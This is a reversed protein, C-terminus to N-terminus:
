KGKTASEVHYPGLAKITLVDPFNHNEEVIFPEQKSKFHELLLNKVGEKTCKLTNVRITTYLPPKQLIEELSALEEFSYYRGLIKEMIVLPCM